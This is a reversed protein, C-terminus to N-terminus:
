ANGSKRLAMGSSALVQLDGKAIQAVANRLTLTAGFFKNIQQFIKKNGRFDKQKEYFTIM